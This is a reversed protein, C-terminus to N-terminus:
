VWTFLLFSISYNCFSCNDDDMSAKQKDLKFIETEFDLSTMDTFSFM